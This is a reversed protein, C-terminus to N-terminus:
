SNTCAALHNQARRLAASGEQIEGDRFEKESSCSAANRALMEDHERQEHHIQDKLDDLLGEINALPGGAKIQSKIESFL